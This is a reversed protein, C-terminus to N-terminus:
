FCSTQRLDILRSGSLWLGLFVLILAAGVYRIKRLPNLDNWLPLNQPYATEWSLFYIFLDPFWVISAGLVALDMGFTMELFYYSCTAKSVFFLAFLLIALFILNLNRITLFITSKM